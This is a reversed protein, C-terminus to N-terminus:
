ILYPATSRLHAYLKIRYMPVKNPIIYHQTTCNLSTHSHLLASCRRQLQCHSERWLAVTGWLICERYVRSECGALLTHPYSLVSYTTRFSCRSVQRCRASRKSQGAPEEPSPDACVNLLCPLIIYGDRLPLAKRNRRGAGVQNILDLM